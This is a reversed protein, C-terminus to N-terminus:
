MKSIWLDVDQGPIYATTNFEEITKLKSSTDTPEYAEVLTTWALSCDGDPLKKTVSDSVLQLCKDSKMALLLECYAIENTRRDLLEEKSCDM